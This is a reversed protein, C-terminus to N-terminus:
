KSKRYVIMGRGRSYLSELAIIMTYKKNQINDGTSLAAPRVTLMWYVKNFSSIFLPFFM